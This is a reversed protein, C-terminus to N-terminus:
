RERDGTRKTTPDIADAVAAKKGRPLVTMLLIFASLILCVATTIIIIPWEDKMLGFTLWLAFGSVTLAFMPASISGTDRTKIFKWAQPTFSTMSCFAALYGIITVTEM